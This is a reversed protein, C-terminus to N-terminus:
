LQLHAMKWDRQSCKHLFHMVEFFLHNRPTTNIKSTVEKGDVQLQTRLSDRLQSLQKVEEDQEHRVQSGIVSFNCPAQKQTFCHLWDQSQNVYTICTFLFVDSLLATISSLSQLSVSSFMGGNQLSTWSWVLVALFGANSLAPSIIAKAGQVFNRCNRGGIQM